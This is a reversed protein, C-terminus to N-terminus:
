QYYQNNNEKEEEVDGSLDAPEARSIIDLIIARGAKFADLNLDVVKAPLKEALVENWKSVSLPLFFSLAGLMITNLVKVNGLEHSKETANFKVINEAYKAIEVDVAQDSPYEGKGTSVSVPDIKSDNMLTVGDTRLMDAYRVTELKEFGVLFNADGRDIIPSYIKPAIRVNSVVSGGRQAMGLTDTKKVDYGNRMAVESLIDSALVVGQGGVGVLVIDFGHEIDM